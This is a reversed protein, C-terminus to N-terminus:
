IEKHCVDCFHNFPIKRQKDHFEPECVEEIEILELCKCYPCGCTEIYPIGQEMRKISGETWKHIWVHGCKWIFKEAM